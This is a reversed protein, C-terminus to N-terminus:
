KDHCTKCLASGYDSMVLHGKETNLPDHCTLCGVKGNVFIMKTNSGVPKYGRNAAVYADYTMGLPHDSSFSNVMSRRDSPRDRFDVNIQSAGVGDHCSLCGVSLDDPTGGFNATAERKVSRFLVTLSGTAGASDDDSYAAPVVNGYM